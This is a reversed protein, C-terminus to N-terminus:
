RLPKLSALYHRLQGEADESLPFFSLGARYSLQAEGPLTRTPCYIHSWSVQAGLRLHVGTLHLSLTCTDRPSLRAPQEIMAGAPSLNLVQVTSSSGLSAPLRRTLKVRPYRRQERARMSAEQLM